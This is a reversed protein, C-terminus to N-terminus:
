SQRKRSGATGTDQDLTTTWRTKILPLFSLRSGLLPPFRMQTFPNGATSRERRQFGPREKVTRIWSPREIATPHM